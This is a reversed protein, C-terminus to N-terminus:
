IRLVLWYNDDWYVTVETTNPSLYERCYESYQKNTYIAGDIIFGTNQITIYMIRVKTKDKLEIFNYNFNSPLYELKPKVKLNSLFGCKEPEKVVTNETTPFEISWNTFLYEMTFQLLPNTQRRYWHLWSKEWLDTKQLINKTFNDKYPNYYEFIIDVIENSISCPSECDEVIIKEPSILRLLSLPLM